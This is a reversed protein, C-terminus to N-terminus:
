SDCSFDDYWGLVYIIALILDMHAKESIINVVVGGSNFMMGGIIGCTDRSSKNYWILQLDRRNQQFHM